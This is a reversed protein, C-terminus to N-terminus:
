LVAARHVSIVRAAASRAIRESNPLGTFWASLGKSIGASLATMHERALRPLSTATVDPPFNFMPTRPIATGAPLDPPRASPSIILTIDSGRVPTPGLVEVNLVSPVAPASLDGAGITALWRGHFEALTDREHEADARRLFVHLPKAFPLLFDPEDFLEQATGPLSHTVLYVHEVDSFTANRGASPPLNVGTATVPSASCTRAPLNDHQHRAGQRGARHRAERVFFGGFLTESM